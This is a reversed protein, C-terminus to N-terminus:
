NFNGASTPINSIYDSKVAPVYYTGYTKLGNEGEQEPLEVYFCYYPMFYTDYTESRYVLEVKRIYELGPMEYPVTTLHNGKSLM